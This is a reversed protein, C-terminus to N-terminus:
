ASSGGRLWAVAEDRRRFVTTVVGASESYVAGMRSLGFHVDETAVVAVRKVRDKFPGLYAAVRIIDESARTALSSSRSVDVLMLFTPPCAPDDLALHFTKIVDDPPCDGLFEMELVDQDFRYTVPM